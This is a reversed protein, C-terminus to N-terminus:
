EDFSLGDPNHRYHEVLGGHDFIERIAVPLPEIALEGGASLNRVVDAALDIEAEDGEEFLDTVGPCTVAPLGIAIANRYFIRSFSDAVVAGVGATQIAAPAEERSSGSGFHSGAVVIDGADIEGAFGPRIPDFVHEAMVEIPQDLYDSPAIVDTNVEDGFTYVTGRM